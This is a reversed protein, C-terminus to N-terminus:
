NKPIGLVNNYSFFPIVAGIMQDKWDNVTGDNIIRLLVESVEKNVHISRYILLSNTFWRNIIIRQTIPNLKAVNIIEGSEMFMKGAANNYITCLEKNIIGVLDPEGDVRLTNFMDMAKVVKKNSNDVTGMNGEIAM